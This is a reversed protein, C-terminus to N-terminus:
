VISVSCERWNRLLGSHRRSEQKLTRKDDIRYDVEQSHHQCQQRATLSLFTEPIQLVLSLSLLSFVILTYM